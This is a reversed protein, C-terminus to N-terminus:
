FRCHEADLIAGSFCFITDSAPSRYTNVKDVGLLMGSIRLRLAIRGDRFDVLADFHGGFNWIRFMQWGILISDGIKLQEIERKELEGDSIVSVCFSL